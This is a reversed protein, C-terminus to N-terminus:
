WNDSRYPAMPLRAGNYLNGRPFDSWAFRVAVPQSVEPSRLVVSDGEITPTAWAWKKDAGAIAFVNNSEGELKLGGAAHDLRLRITGAEPTMQRVTPGSAEVKFGYDNQLALLALRHGVEQKNKPHINGQDGIDTTVSYGSNKVTGAVFAQSERIPAWSFSKEMPQTDPSRFGALQVLYFPFDGSKFRARWDTILMSLLPKYQEPRTENAEGQYWLAGKIGFPTLPAIMSNFLVSPTRPFDRENFPAGMLQWEVASAARRVKGQGELSVSVGGAELKMEGATGTGVLGGPGVFDFVRVALIARGAKMQAAPISYVRKNGIGNTAGIRAGNWFTTDDDDINGLTLVADHGEMAAPVQVPVRYWVYGDFDNLDGKDDRTFHGPIAVNTWASDDFDPKNWGGAYGADHSLTWQEQQIEIPVDDRTTDLSALGPKFAAFSRLVPASAWVEAATGGWSADILGIPVNLKQNLERGFFYGVASFQGVTAPSVRKWQVDALARPTRAATRPVFLFRINPYNAAATQAASNNVNEMRLEMNSQGSCLWVDGFAIDRRTETQKTASDSVVLTHGTGAGIPGIQTMWRGSAETKASIKRKGDLSVSIKEGPRAFGWVPIRRDRQLVAGDSFLPHLLPRAAGLTVAVPADAAQTGPTLTSLAGITLAGFLTLDLRTMPLLHVFM